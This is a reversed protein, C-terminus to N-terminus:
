LHTFPGGVAYEDLRLTSKAPGRSLVNQFATWANEEIIINEVAENFVSNVVNNIVDNTRQTVQTVIFSPFATTSPNSVEEWGTTPLDKVAEAISVM